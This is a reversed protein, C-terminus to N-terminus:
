IEGYYGNTRLYNLAKSLISPSDQFYGLARNCSNCLLGRVEKTQHNHDVVFRKGPGGPDNSGCIACCGNQQNLMEDYDELTIGYKNQYKWRRAVQNTKHYEKRCEKCANRGLEFESSPKEIGCKICTKNAM